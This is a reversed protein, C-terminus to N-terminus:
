SKVNAIMVVMNDMVAMPIRSVGGVGGLVDELQCQKERGLEDDM